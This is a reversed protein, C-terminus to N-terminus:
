TEEKSGEAIMRAEELMKELDDNSFSRLTDMVQAALEGGADDFVIAQPPKGWGYEFLFQRADKNGEMSQAWAKRITAEIRNIRLKGDPTIVDGVKEGGIERITKALTKMNSPRGSPNRVEGPKIMNAKWKPNNKWNDDTKRKEGKKDARRNDNKRAM